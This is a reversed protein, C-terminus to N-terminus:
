LLEETKGRYKRGKTKETPHKRGMKLIIRWAYRM